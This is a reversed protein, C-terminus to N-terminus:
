GMIGAVMEEIESQTMVPIGLIDNNLKPTFNGGYGSGWCARAIFGLSASLLDSPTGKELSKYANQEVDATSVTTTTWDRGDRKRAIEILKNQTIATDHVYIDRNKTAELNNIVGIVAKGITALRTASFTVDGGDYLTATHEKLNVMFGIQLQWDFFSNTYLFSYSFDPYQAAKEVLYEQTKVKDAFVPLKRVGPNATDNGFESPIFRTVGARISADILKKQNEFLNQFGLNSVVVDVGQLAAGLSEPDDYNVEKITANSSSPLAVKSRSGLRALVTLSFPTQLLQSLVAPGLNGTAGALVVHVM